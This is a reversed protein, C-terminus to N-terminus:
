KWAAPNQQRPKLFRQLDFTMPSTYVDPDASIGYSPSHVETGTPIYLGDHFTYDQVAVRNVLKIAPTLRHSEGLFSDLKCLKELHEIHIQILRMMTDIFEALSVNPGAKDLMRQLPDDPKKFLSDNRIAM